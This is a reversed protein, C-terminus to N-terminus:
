NIGVIIFYANDPKKVILDMHEEFEVLNSVEDQLFVGFVDLDAENSILVELTESSKWETSIIEPYAGKLLSPFGKRSFAESLQGAIEWLHPTLEEDLTNWQMGRGEDRWMSGTYRGDLSVSYCEGSSEVIAQKDGDDTHIEFIYREMNLNPEKTGDPVGANKKKRSLLYAATLSFGLIGGILIGKHHKYTWEQIVSICARRDKTRM